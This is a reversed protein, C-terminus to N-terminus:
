YSMRFFVTGFSSLTMIKINISLVFDRTSILPVPMVKMVSEKM